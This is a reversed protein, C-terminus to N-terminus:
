PGETGFKSRTVRRAGTNQLPKCIEPVNTVMNEVLENWDNKELVCQVESKELDTIHLNTPQNVIWYICHFTHDEPLDV